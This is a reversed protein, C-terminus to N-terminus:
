DVGGILDKPQAKEIIKFIILSTIIIISLIAIIALIFFKMNFRIDIISEETLTKTINIYDKNLVYTFLVTSIIAIISLVINEIIVKYFIKMPNEGLVIKIGFEKKRFIMSLITSIILGLIAVGFTVIFFPIWQKNFNFFNNIESKVAYKLNIFELNKNESNIDENNQMKIISNNSNINHNMPIIFSNSSNLYFSLNNNSSMLYRNPKLFGNVRFKSGSVEDEIIDNIKCKNKYRSGLIIPTMEGYNTNFSDENFGSGKIINPNLIDYYNEDIYLGSIHENENSIGKIDIYTPSYKGVIGIDQEIVENVYTNYKEEDKIISDDKANILYTNEIDIGWSSNSSVLMGNLYINLVSYTIFLTITLQIISLISIKKRSVIGYMIDKLYIM